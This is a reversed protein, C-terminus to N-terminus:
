KKSLHSLIVDTKQVKRFFHHFTMNEPCKRFYGSFRQKRVKRSLEKQESKANRSPINRFIEGSVM